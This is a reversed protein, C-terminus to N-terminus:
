NVKAAKHDKTELHARAALLERLERSVRTEKRVTQVEKETNELLDQVVWSVMRARLVELVLNEEKVKCARLARNAPSVGATKTVQQRSALTLRLQRQKSRIRRQQSRRNEELFALLRTTITGPM